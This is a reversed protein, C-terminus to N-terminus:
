LINAAATPLHELGRMTDTSLKQAILRRYEADTRWFFFREDFHTEARLRAAAGMERARHKDALLRTIADALAPADHVPVLYGTVGDVIVERTGRVDTGISPRGMAAAEMLIRPVGEAYSALVVADMMAMLEPVDRRVGLFLVRDAVGHHAILEQPSLAEAKGKQAAGIALFRV